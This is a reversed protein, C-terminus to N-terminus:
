SFFWYLFSIRKFAPTTVTSKCHRCLVHYDFPVKLDVFIRYSIFYISSEEPFFFRIVKAFHNLNSFFRCFVPIREAMPTLFFCKRHRCIINYNLSIETNVAVFHCILYISDLISIGLSMLISACYRQPSFRLRFTVCKTAPITFIVKRHRCLIYYDFSVKLDVAIRHRIFNVTLYATFCFSILISCYYCQSLFRCFFTIRETVPATLWSKRHRCFIYHNFSM